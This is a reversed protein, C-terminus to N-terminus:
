AVEELALSADEEFHIVVATLDDSLLSASEKGPPILARLIVDHITQASAMSQFGAAKRLLDHASSGSSSLHRPIGDTYFLLTDRPALTATGHAAERVSGDSHLIAGKPFDGTCAVDLTRAHPDIIAYLVGTEAGSRHLSNGLMRVLDSLIKQPSLERCAEVMLFGKTLAITLASALGDNGGEAVAIGLLGGPLSFFDFYDGSVETAPTCSAAISLGPVVPPKDPLLRLQAQRAADLEAQMSLRQALNRAYQPRVQSEGYTRGRRWAIAAACVTAGAAIYLITDFGQWSKAFGAIEALASGFTFAIVAIVSALYDVLFFPLLLVAALSASDVWFGLKDVSTNAGLSGLLFAALVLIALGLVRSRVHRRIFTIPLLLGTVSVFIGGIPMSLLLIAWHAKSFTARLLGNDSLDAPLGLWASLGKNLLLMWAAVGAGWVVSRGVNASLFKGLILADLSTLKGPYAERIEGEGAGYALGILLGQIGVWSVFLVRILWAGAGVLREPPLGVIGYNPDIVLLLVGFTLMFGALTLMRQHPVERELARRAYRYCGYIAALFLLVLRALNALQRVSRSTSGARGAENDEYFPKFEQRTVAAGEVEATINADLGDIKPMDARWIFRSASPDTSGEIMQIEPQGLDITLGPPVSALVSAEALAQYSQQTQTPEQPTARPFVGTRRFGGVSGDPRFSTLFWQKGDPRIFLVNVSYPTLLNRVLRKQQSVSQELFDDLRPDTPITISLSWGSTNVGRAAALKTAGEIAEKRDIDLRTHNTRNIVSQFYLAGCFAVPALWLLISRRLDASM